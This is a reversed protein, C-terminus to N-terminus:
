QAYGHFVALHSDVPGVAGERKRGPELQHHGGVGAPAGGFGWLGAGAGCGHPGFVEGVKGAWEPVADINEAVGV